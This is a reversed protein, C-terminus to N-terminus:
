VSDLAPATMCLMLSTYGKDPDMKKAAAYNLFELIITLIWEFTCSDDLCMMLFTNCLNKFKSLIEDEFSFNSQLTLNSAIALLSLM